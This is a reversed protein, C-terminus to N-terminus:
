CNKQSNTLTKRPSSKHQWLIILNTQLHSHNDLRLKVLNFLQYDEPDFLRPRKPPAGSSKSLFSKIDNPSRTRLEQRDEKAIIQATM